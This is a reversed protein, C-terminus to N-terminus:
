LLNYEKGSLFVNVVITFEQTVGGDDGRRNDSSNKNIILRNVRSSYLKKLEKPNPKIYTGHVMNKSRGQLEDITESSLGINSAHFKRLTHARFFRYKGKFGWGQSDNIEQFRALLTSSTIDFLKDGFKLGPRTLLYEVIENSAEPSCFTYYYKDTKLRKLYITPIIDDRGKLTHLIEQLNGGNHYDRCGDVFQKVTLSLTEAKASGSSSMFLIISRVDISSIKLATRIHERTPLDHYNTEYLKEYKADPLSPIEIDFHKYFTKVRTFYSKVTNPSNSTELLYNRYDLLRKKIRREKLPTNNKEEKTAEKILEHLTQKQYQTYHTLASEYGQTTSTKVNREQIFQQFLDDDFM